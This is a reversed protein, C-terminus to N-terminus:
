KEEYVYVKKFNLAQAVIDAEDEDSHGNLIYQINSLTLIDDIDEELQNEEDLWNYIIKATKEDIDLYNMISEITIDSTESLLLKKM